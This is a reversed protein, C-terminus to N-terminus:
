RKPQQVANMWDQVPLDAGLYLTPLGSRRAAISFALVGLEHRSGPPLGVVVPRGGRGARGAAQYAAGLRHLIAQSAVHEVAIDAQGEAWLAGIAHLAPALYREAIQEFSGRVFMEELVADMAPADLARAAGVFAQTIDGDVRAGTSGAASVAEVAAATTGGRERISAAANSPSWGDEVLARMSRLQAIDADDYLRYGGPTRAPRVVGYRREWQRLLPVSIRARISAQKITYM